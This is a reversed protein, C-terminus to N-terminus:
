PMGKLWLLSIENIKWQSSPRSGVEDRETIVRVAVQQLHACSYNPLHQFTESFHAWFEISYIYIWIKIFEM